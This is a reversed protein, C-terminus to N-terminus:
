KSIIPLMRCTDVYYIVSLAFHKAREFGILDPIVIFLQKHPRKSLSTSQSMIIATM